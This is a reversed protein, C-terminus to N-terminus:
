TVDGLSGSWSRMSLHNAKSEGVLATVCGYRSGSSSTSISKLWQAHSEMYEGMVGTWRALDSRRISGHRVPVMLPLGIRHSSGSSVTNLVGGFERADACWM